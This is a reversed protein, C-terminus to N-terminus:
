TLELNFSIVENVSNFMKASKYPLIWCCTRNIFYRKAGSEASCEAGFEAGYELIYFFLINTGKQVVISWVIIKACSGKSVSEKM